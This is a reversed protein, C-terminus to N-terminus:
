FKIMQQINQGRGIYLLGTIRPFPLRNIKVQKLSRSKQENKAWSKYCFHVTMISRSVMGLSIRSTLSPKSFCKKILKGNESTQCSPFEKSPLLLFGIRSLNIHLSLSNLVPRPTYNLPLNSAECAHPRPNLGQCWSFLIFDGQFVLFHLTVLSFHFSIM